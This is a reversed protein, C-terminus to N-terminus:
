LHPLKMITLVLNNQESIGICYNRISDLDQRSIRSSHATKRRIENVKNLINTFKSINIGNSSLYSQIALRNSDRNILYLYQGLMISTVHTDGVRSDTGLRGTPHNSKLYTFLRANIELEISRCYCISVPALDMDVEALMDYLLEGTMMFEASQPNLSGLIRRLATGQAHRLKSVDRIKILSSVHSKVQDAFTAYAEDDEEVPVGGHLLLQQKLDQFDGILKYSFQNLAESVKEVIREEQSEIKLQLFMALKALDERYGTLLPEHNSIDSIMNASVATEAHQVTLAQEEDELKRRLYLEYSSSSLVYSGEDTLKVIGRDLLEQPMTRIPDGTVCASLALREVQSTYDWFSELIGEGRTAVQGTLGDLTWRIGEAPDDEYVMECALKLLAPNGGSVRELWNALEPYDGKKLELLDKAFVAIDDGAFPAIYEHKFIEDFRSMQMAVSVHKLHQYAAVIYGVNYIPNDGLSRLINFDDEKLRAEYAAKEFNDLVLMCKYGVERLYRLFELLVNQPYDRGDRRLDEIIDNWEESWVDRFETNRRVERLIQNYLIAFFGHALDNSQQTPNLERLDLSVVVTMRDNTIRRRKLTEIVALLSSKGMGKHGILALSPTYSVNIYSAFIKDQMKKAKKGVLQEYQSVARKDLYPNFSNM